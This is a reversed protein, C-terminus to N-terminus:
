GAGFRRPAGERKEEQGISRGDGKQKKGKRRGRGGGKNLQKKRWRIFRRNGTYVHTPAIEFPAFAFM